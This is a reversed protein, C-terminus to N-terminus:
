ILPLSPFFSTLDPLCFTPASLFLSQGKTPMETRGDLETPLLTALAETEENM